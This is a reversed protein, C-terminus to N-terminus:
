ILLFDVLVEVVCPGDDSLSQLGDQATLLIRMGILRQLSQCTRVTGNGLLSDVVEDLSKIDAILYLGLHHSDCRM